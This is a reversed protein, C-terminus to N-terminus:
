LTSLLLLLFFLTWYVKMMATGGGEKWEMSIGRKMKEERLEINLPFSWEDSQIFSDILNCVYVGDSITSNLIWCRWWWLKWKWKEELIIWFCDLLSYFLVSFFPLSLWIFNLLRLFFIDTSSISRIEKWIHFCECYTVQTYTHHVYHISNMIHTSIIEISCVNMVTVFPLQVTIIIAVFSTM